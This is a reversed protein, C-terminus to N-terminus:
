SLQPKDAKNSVTDSKEGFKGKDEETVSDIDRANKERAFNLCFTSSELAQDRDRASHQFM